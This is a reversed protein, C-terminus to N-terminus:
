RLTHTIRPAVSSTFSLKSVAMVTSNATTLLVDCMVAFIHFVDTQGANLGSTESQAGRRPSKM